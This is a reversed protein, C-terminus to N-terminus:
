GLFMTQNRVASFPPYNKHLEKVSKFRKKVHARHRCPNDFLRGVAQAGCADSAPAVHNWSPVRPQAFDDGKEGM